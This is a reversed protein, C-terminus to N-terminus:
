ASSVVAGGTGPRSLAPSPQAPLQVRSKLRSRLLAVCRMREVRGAAGVRRRSPADIDIWDCTSNRERGAM